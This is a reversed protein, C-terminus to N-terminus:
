YVFFLGSAVQLCVCVFFLKKFTLRFLCEIGVFHYPNKQCRYILRKYIKFM